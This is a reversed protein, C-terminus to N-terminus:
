TSLIIAGLQMHYYIVGVSCLHIHPSISLKEVHYEIKMFWVDFDKTLVDNIKRGAHTVSNSRIYPMKLYLVEHM